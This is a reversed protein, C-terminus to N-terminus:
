VKKQHLPLTFFFTTGQRGAPLGEGYRSEFWVTGRHKEIIDHAIFLGLGSGDPESKIANAARFFKHFVRHGEEEPIGIGSDSISIELAAEASNLRSDSLKVNVRGGQPTYKIANDILNELVMRIKDADLDVQPVGAQPKEVTLDIKKISAQNSFEFLVDELLKLIDTSKFVYDDKDTNISDAKLLDNVISIVRNVSELGKGLFKKQEEDVVGLDGKAAMDLTWKIAALPTRLQHTTVSIFKSKAQELSRLHNNAITLELEKAYLERNKDELKKNIKELIIVQDTKLNAKEIILKVRGERGQWYSGLCFAFVLFLVSIIWFGPESIFAFSLSALM